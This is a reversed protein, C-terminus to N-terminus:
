GSERAFASVLKEKAIQQQEPGGPMRLVFTHFVTDGGAVVKSDAVSVGVEAITRMVQAAPHADMPCSVRVVVEDHHAGSQVEVDAGGSGGQGGTEMDKLKKQLETIYAIADGLLSAKDMKSINPVVARLAYFRQNLKERRQREAEVHNLPEERGNAPKRGRKRPRREDAGPVAAASTGVTLQDEKPAESDSHESEVVGTPPATVAVPPARVTFDIQRAQSYMRASDADATPVVRGNRIQNWNLGHFGKRASQIPHMRHDGGNSIPHVTGDWPSLTLNEVKANITPPPRGLNLDRGFIKPCDKREKNFFMSRISHLVEPDEPMSEVSGLELVGTDSPIFVVTRIGASRALSSRVCYDSPGWRHKGSAFAKGPGGEGRLFSFYMSALFFMETDTVRDLRLAYNEDGGGDSGGGSFAHIGQLVRKRMAQAAEPDSGGSAATSTGGGAEEGDRPERCYGDGWGLVVEGSRSSRSIQWFIAYNWCRDAPNAGEVLDVLKEQIEGGDTPGSGAALLGESSVTSKMLYDFAERGLVVAAAARDEESWYARGGAVMETKM